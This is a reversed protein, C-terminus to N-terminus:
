RGLGLAASLSGAVRASKAHGARKLLTQTEAFGPPMARLFILERPALLAAAEPLETVRLANLLAPRQWHSTPPEALIVSGVRQGLLGAYLAVVGAEGRGFVAIRPAPVKEEEVAWAIARQVDWVQMAAITRGTWAATRELDTFEPASITAETFRPHVVLIPCSEFLPMREDFDSFYVMEGAGKVEVLLPAANSQKKPRFLRARIRVEPETAFSVEKFDAYRTSWGGGGSRM